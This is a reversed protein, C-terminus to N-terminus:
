QDRFYVVQHTSALLQGGDSWVEASQDYYGNRYNVARACGLVHREGQGALMAADAHFFTTLSVTGIPSFVRRRIFIRPFFCDCIAALSAFDLPRPPEDRVWLQSNSNLQEQGDFRMEGNVFRMDYRHVWPLSVEVPSRILDLAAPVDSPM